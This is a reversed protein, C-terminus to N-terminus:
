VLRVRFTTECIIPVPPSVTQTEPALRGWTSCPAPSPSRGRSGGSLAVAASRRDLAATSAGTTPDGAPLLIMLAPRIVARPPEPSRHWRGATTLDLVLSGSAM